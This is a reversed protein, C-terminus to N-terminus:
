KLAEPESDKQYKKDTEMSDSGFEIACGQTIRKHITYLAFFLIAISIIRLPIQYITLLNSAIVGISGFTAGRKPLEDELFIPLNTGILIETIAEEEKSFGTVNMGDLLPTGDSLTANLL